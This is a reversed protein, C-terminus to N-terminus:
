ALGRDQSPPNPIPANGSGQKAKSKAQRVAGRTTERAANQQRLVGAAALRIVRREADTREYSPGRFRSPINKMLEEQHHLIFINLVFNIDDTHRLIANTRATKTREQIEAASDDVQCGGLM